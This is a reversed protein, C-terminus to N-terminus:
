TQVTFPSGPVHQEHWKVSIWTEGPEPIEYEVKFTYDGNHTVTIYNVPVFAGVACVELKGNGGALTADVVFSGPTDINSVICKSADPPPREVRVPFPGGPIEVDAFKIIFKYMGAATPTYSVRFTGDENDICSVETRKPGELAIGLSGEGAKSLDVMFEAEKHLTAMNLGPGSAVVAMPDCVGVTFPSDEINGNAYRVVAKHNGASSPTYTLKCENHGLMEMEIPIEQDLSDFVHVTFKGPGADESKIYFHTEENAMLGSKLGPGYATCAKPNSLVITQPDGIPFGNFLVFLELDIAEYVTFVLHYHEPEVETFDYDVAVKTGKIPKFEADLKGPGAGNTYIDVVSPENLTAFIPLLDVSSEVGDVWEAAVEEDVEPPKIKVAVPNGISAKFPEDSICMSGHVISVECQGPETSTYEGWYIGPTEDVPQLDLTSEEGHPFKVSASLPASGANTTDVIVKAPEGVRTGEGTIGPGRATVMTPDYVNITHPSGPVPKNAFTTCLKYEGAEVDEITFNLTGDDQKEPLLDIKAPGELHVGLEGEGAKTADITFELPTGKKVPEGDLHEGTVSVKTPDVVALRVPSLLLETESFVMKMIYTGPSNPTFRVVYNSDATKEIEVDENCGQPDTVIVEMEGEGADGTDVAYVLQDATCIIGEETIGPGNVKVKNPETVFVTFPSGSIDVGDYTVAVSYQGVKRPNYQVSYTDDNNNTVHPRANTRFSSSRRRTSSRKGGGTTPSNSELPLNRVPTESRSTPGDVSVDLAGPGALSTDVLFSGTDGVKVGHLQIGPGTVTVKSADTCPEFVPTFPSFPIPEDAFSVNVKYEGPEEPLFQVVAIGNGKDDVKVEAESPGEISLALNGSGAKSMDLTFEVWQKVTGGELGRGFAKVKSPDTKWAANVKFPSGPVPQDAFLVEVKYEGAEEPDIFYRVKSLGEEVIETELEEGGGPGQVQIQPEGKGAKKYDVFFEAWMDTMLNGGEVGEGYCLVASPDIAPTIAVHFPSNPIHVGEWLVNIDYEGAELPIYECKVMNNAQDKVTVPTRSPGDVSVLLHGEGGRRMDVGFTTLEGSINGDELGKGEALVQSADYVYLKIPTDPIASEAFTVNMKLRGADVPTYHLYFTGDGNDTIKPASQDYDEPRMPGQVSCGVKGPGAERADIFYELPKNIPLFEGKMGPGTMRVKNTDTVAVTFPSNPIHEGSFKADITYIGPVKAEYTYNYTYPSTSCQPELNGDPGTIAVELDGHGAGKTRVEFKTPIDVRVGQSELGPGSAICKSPDTPPEVNVKFRSGPINEGGYKVTIVYEGDEEPMYTYEYVGDELKKCDAVVQGSKNRIHIGLDGRGAGKTYVWFTCPKGVALNKGTIGDGEARCKSADALDQTIHVKYPSEDVHLGGFLIEIIYQGASPPTYFIHYKGGGEEEVHMYEDGIVPGKPGRISLSLTGEGAGETEVWFETECGEKLNSGELGPGYAKCVTADSGQSVNVVFPSRPVPQGSWYIKITYTGAINPVYSCSFTGDKKDTIFVEEKGEPGEVDITLKGVGADRVDVTFEATADDTSIGEPEVGSGYVKVKSANSGTSKLPAGEKLEAEPFMSIYTM